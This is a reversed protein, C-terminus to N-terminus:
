EADQWTFIIEETVEGLGWLTKTRDAKGEPRLTLLAATEPTGDPWTVSVLLTAQAGLPYHIEKLDEGPAFTWTAEEITVTVESFPHASRLFLDATALTSPGVKEPTVRQFDAQNLVRALPWGLAALPILPILTAVFPSRTM